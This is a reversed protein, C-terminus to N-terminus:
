VILKIFLEVISCDKFLPDKGTKIITNLKNMPKYAIDFGHIYSLKKFKESIKSLYPITFFKKKNSDYENNNEERNQDPNTRNELTKIRHQQFYSNLLIAM